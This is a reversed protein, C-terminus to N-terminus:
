RGSATPPPTNKVLHRGALIPAPRRWHRGLKATRLPGRWGTPVNGWRGARTGGALAWLLKCACQPVAATHRPLTQHVYIWILCVWQACVVQPSMGAPNPFAKDRGQGIRIRAKEMKPTASRPRHARPGSALGEFAAQRHREAAAQEAALRDRQEKRRPFKREALIVSRLEHVALSIGQEIVAAKPHDHRGAIRALLELSAVREQSRAALERRLTDVAQRKHSAWDIAHHGAASGTRSSTIDENTAQAM